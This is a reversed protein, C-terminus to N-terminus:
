VKCKDCIPNVCGSCENVNDESEFEKGCDECKM